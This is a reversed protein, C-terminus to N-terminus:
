SNSRHKRKLVWVTGGVAVATGGALGVWFLPSKYFPLTGTAQQFTTVSVPEVGLPAAPTSTVEIHTATSSPTAGLGPAIVTGLPIAVRFRGNDFATISGAPYRVLGTTATARPVVPRAFPLMLRGRVLTFPPTCHLVQLANQRATLVGPAVAGVKAALGPLFNVAPGQTLSPPAPFDGSLLKIILYVLEAVEIAACALKGEAAGAVIGASAAPTAVIGAGTSAVAVVVDNNVLACGFNKVAEFVDGANEAIVNWADQAVAEVANAAAVVADVAFDYFNSDASDRRRAVRKIKLIEHDQDWFVGMDHGDAGVFTTFAVTGTRVAVNYVSALHVALASATAAAVAAVWMQRDAPSLDEARAHGDFSRSGSWEQPDIRKGTPWNGHVVVPKTPLVGTQPILPFCGAACTAVPRNHVPPCISGLSGSSPSPDVLVATLIATALIDSIDAIATKLSALSGDITSALSGSGPVLRIIGLLAGYVDDILWPSLVLASVQDGYPILNIPQQLLGVVNLVQGLVPNIDTGIVEVANALAIITGLTMTGDYRAPDIQAAQQSVALKRLAIQLGRVGTLAGGTSAADAFGTHHTFIMTYFEDIAHAIM